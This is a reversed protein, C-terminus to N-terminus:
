EILKAHRVLNVVKVSFKSGTGVEDPRGQGQYRVIITDDKGDIIKPPTITKLTGGPMIRKGEQSKIIAAKTVSFAQNANVEM